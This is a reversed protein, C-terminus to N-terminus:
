KVRNGKSDYVAPGAKAADANQKTEVAKTSPTVDITQPAPKKKAARELADMAELEAQTHEDSPCKAFPCGHKACFFGDQPMQALQRSDGIQAQRNKADWTVPAGSPATGDEQVIQRGGPTIDQLRQQMEEEVFVDGLGPFAKRLGKAEACKELQNCPMRNWFDSRPAKLDVPAFEDWYVTSVTDEAGRRHVKVTASMPIPRGRPTKQPPDFWTFTADSGGAYDKHDRAAMKRYGGIGTIIVMDYGGVWIGKEDKHHKDTHFLVCYIEKVFPDLGSKQCVQMFLTFQDDDTNRAITRKLLAVQADTFRRESWHALRPAEAKVIATSTPKKAPKTRRQHKKKKKM